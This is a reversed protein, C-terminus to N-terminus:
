EITEAIVTEAILVNLSLAAREPPRQRALTLFNRVLRTCREAAQAIAEVGERLPGGDLDARLLDAQMTVVALPNSLAHAVHALLAGLAALKERQYLAEQQQQLQAATRQREVVRGLQIGIQMLAACLAADPEQRTDTYFECVGVVERDVLIPFAFGATLWA